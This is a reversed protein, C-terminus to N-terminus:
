DCFPLTLLPRLVDDLGDRNDLVSDAMDEDNKMPIKM